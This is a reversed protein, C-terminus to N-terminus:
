EPAGEGTLRFAAEIDSESVGRRRMLERILVYEFANDPPLAYDLIDKGWIQHGAARLQDYVGEITPASHVEIKRDVTLQLTFQASNGDYAARYQIARLLQGQYLRM